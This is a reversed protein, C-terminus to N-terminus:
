INLSTLWRVQCFIRYLPVGAYAAGVMFIGIACIYILATKDAKQHAPGSAVGRFVVVKLKHTSGQSNLSRSLNHVTRNSLISTLRGPKCLNTFNHQRFNLLLKDKLGSSRQLVRDTCYLRFHPSGSQLVCKSIRATSAM